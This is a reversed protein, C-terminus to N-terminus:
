KQQELIIRASELYQELDSELKTETACVILLRRDDHGLRAAPLGPLIGRARMQEYFSEADVPLHITFENFFPAPCLLRVGDLRLLGELLRRPLELNLAGLHAFGAQGILALYFTVMAACIGENTCINSTARERRIHQERTQLTLVYGARGDHDVTRGVIRGPMQRLHQRHTALFGAYPGGFNLPLGLPQSEGIAIDAGWQGPPQIVSLSMPNVLAILLAGEEHAMRALAEAPELFGFFNPQMVVVAALDKTAEPWHGLDTVGGAMRPDAPSELLRIGLSRTYSEVVERYSPHLTRPLLIRNKGTIRVAMLVAEALASAGDYLSANAVEMQTLSSIMSQFEYILQLTGQSAEPQYPTYSTLFEGRQALASVAAPIFHEYAGAGIFNLYQSAAPRNLAARERILRLAEYESLARSPGTPQALRISEPLDAFLEEIDKLGITELMEQIDEKTNAIFTM